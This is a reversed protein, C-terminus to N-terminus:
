HTEHNETNSAAKFIAVIETYAERDYTGRETTSLQEHKLYQGEPLGVMPGSFSSNFIDKLCNFQNDTLTHNQM